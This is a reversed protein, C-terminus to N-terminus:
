VIFYIFDVLCVTRLKPEVLVVFCSIKTLRGRCVFLKLQQDTVLLVFLM